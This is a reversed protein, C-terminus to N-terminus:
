RLFFALPENPPHPSASLQLCPFLCLDGMPEQRIKLSFSLRKQERWHVFKTLFACTVAVHLLRAANIELVALWIGNSLREGLSGFRVDATMKSSASSPSLIDGVTYPRLTHLYALSLLCGLWLLDQTRSCHYSFLSTRREELLVEDSLRRESYAVDRLHDRIEAEKQLVFPESSDM